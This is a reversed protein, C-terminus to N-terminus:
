FDSTARNARWWSRWAEIADMREEASAFVEFGFDEGTIEKLSDLACQQVEADPDSLLSILPSISHRLRFLACCAIATRKVHSDPDRLMRLVFSSGKDQHSWSLLNVAQRRIQPDPDDLSATLLAFSDEDRYKAFAWLAALRIAPNPDDLFDLFLAKELTGDDNLGGLMNLVQVTRLPDQRILLLRRMIEVAITRPLGAIRELARRRLAKPQSHFDRVYVEAEMQQLRSDFEIFSLIDRIDDPRYGRQKAAHAERPEGDPGTDEASEVYPEGAPIPPGDRAQTPAAGHFGRRIYGALSGLWHAIGHSSDEAVVGAKVVGTRSSM